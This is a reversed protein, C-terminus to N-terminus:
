PNLQGSQYILSFQLITNQPYDQRIESLKESTRVSTKRLVELWIGIMCDLSSECRGREFRTNLCGTANSYETKNVYLKGNIICINIEENV